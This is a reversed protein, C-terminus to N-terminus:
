IVQQSIYYTQNINPTAIQWTWNFMAYLSDQGEVGAWQSPIRYPTQYIWTQTGSILVNSNSFMTAYCLNPLITAPLSPIKSLNTCGWFMGYYCWEALTTTPLSPANRLGTCGYFMDCYCMTRLTTATIKLDSADVVYIGYFLDFFCYDTTITSTWTKCLLFTIDWWVTFEGGMWDWKFHYYDSSGTSFWTPTASKNRIYFTTNWPAYYWITSDIPLDTWTVKDTSYELSIPTPNGVKELSFSGGRWWIRIYFYDDSLSSPRIQNWNLMVKQVEQWNIIRKQLDQWNIKIAM